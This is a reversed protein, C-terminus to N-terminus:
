APIQSYEMKVDFAFPRAAHQIRLFLIQKFVAANWRCNKSQSKGSHDPLDDQDDIVHCVGKKDAKRAVVGLQGRDGHAHRGKHKEGGNGVQKACSARANDGAGQASPILCPYFGGCGKRKPAAQYRRRQIGDKRIDPFVHKRIKEAASVGGYMFIRHFVEDTRDHQASAPGNQPSEKRVQDARLPPRDM